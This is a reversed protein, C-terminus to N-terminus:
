KRESTNESGQGGGNGEEAVASSGAAANTGRTEAVEVRESRVEGSVTQQETDVRKGARIVEVLELRKQM